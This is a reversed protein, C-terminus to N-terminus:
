NEEKQTYRELVEPLMNPVVFSYIQEFVMLRNEDTDELEGTIIRTGFFLMTCFIQHVLMEMHTGPRFSDSVLEVLPRFCALHEEYAAGRCTSYYYRIYFYFDDPEELIFEWSRLFLVQARERWPLRSARLQTILEWLLDAFNVDEVHLAAALLEDKGAFCKYIYAENLGSEKAIAKTTAKELGDRAVVRVASRIFAEKIKQIEM